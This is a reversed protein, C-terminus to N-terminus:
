DEIESLALQEAEDLEQQTELAIRLDREDEDEPDESLNPKDVFV